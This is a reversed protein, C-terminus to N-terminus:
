VTGAGPAGAPFLIRIHAGGDNWHHLEGRLEEVLAQILVYGISDEGEVLADPPLGPGNDEVLLEMADGEGVRHCRVTVCAQGAPGPGAPGPGSPGPHATSGSRAYKFANGVLEHLILGLRKVTEVPLHVPEVEVEVRSPTDGIDYAQQVQRVLQIAYDRFPLGAPGETRYLSSHILSISAIRGQLASILSRAEPSVTRRAELSLLSQIVALNNKVRHNTERVLNERERARQEAENVRRVETAHSRVVQIAAHLASHVVEVADDPLREEADLYFRLRTNEDVTLPLVVRGEGGERACARLAEGYLSIGAIGEDLEREIRIGRIPYLERLRHEVERLAGELTPERRVSREIERLATVIRNREQAAVNRARMSWLQRNRRNIVVLATALLALGALAYALEIRVRSEWQGLVLSRDMILAVRLPRGGLSNFAIVHDGHRTSSLVEFTDRQERFAVTATDQHEGWGILNSGHADLIVATMSDGLVTRLYRRIHAEEIAAVVFEGTQLPHYMRLNRERFALREGGFSDFFGEPEIRDPPVPTSRRLVAIRGGTADYLAANSVHDAFLFWTRLIRAAQEPTYDPSLELERTVFTLVHDMEQLTAELRQALLQVQTLALTQAQEFAEHRSRRIDLISYSLVFIFVLCFIVLATLFGPRDRPEEPLAM